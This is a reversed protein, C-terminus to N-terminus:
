PRGTARDEVSEGKAEATLARAEKCLAVFEAQQCM